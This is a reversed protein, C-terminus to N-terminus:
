NEVTCPWEVIFVSRVIKSCRTKRRQPSLPPPILNEERRTVTERRWFGDGAVHIVIRGEENWRRLPRVIRSQVCALRLARWSVWAAFWRASEEGRRTQERERERDEQQLTCRSFSVVSRRELRTGYEACVQPMWHGALETRREKTAREHDVDDTWRSKGRRDNGRLPHDSDSLISTVGLHPNDLRQRIRLPPFLLAHKLNTRSNRRLSPTQIFKRIRNFQEVEHRSSFVNKQCSKVQYEM